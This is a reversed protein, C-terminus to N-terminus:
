KWMSLDRKILVELNEIDEHYFEKLRPIYEEKLSEKRVFPSKNLKDRVFEGAPIIGTTMLINYLGYAKKKHLFRGASNILYNVWPFIAGTTVNSKNTLHEPYYESVELFNLLHKFTEEPNKIFDELLLVEIQSEQFFQYFVSLYKYILSLELLPRGKTFMDEFSKLRYFGKQKGFYSYYSFARKIPNRIVIILKANPNYNYLNKAAAPDSFYDPSFEGAIQSPKKEKYFSHYWSLPKKHNRNLVDHLVSHKENFYFTAGMKPIFIDPHDNLCDRLWTTGSKPTGVCFFDVISEM